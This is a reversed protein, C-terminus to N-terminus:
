PHKQIKEGKEYVASDIARGASDWKLWLGDPKGSVYNSKSEAINNAYFSESSGENVKLSSDTYHEIVILNKNSSNYLRFEFLGNEQYIGNGTFVASSKSVPSLDKDFYYAFHKVQSLGAYSFIFLMISLLLSKIKM